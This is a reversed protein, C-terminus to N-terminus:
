CKCRYRMSAAILLGIGLGSFLGAPVNDILFGLGFGSLLCGAIVFGSAGKHCECSSDDCVTTTKKVDTKSRKAM